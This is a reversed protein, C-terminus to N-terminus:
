SYNAVGYSARPSSYIQMQLQNDIPCLKQTLLPTQLRSKRKTKPDWITHFCLPGTCAGKKEQSNM